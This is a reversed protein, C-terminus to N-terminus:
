QGQAQTNPRAKTNLAEWPKPYNYHPVSPGRHNAYNGNLQNSKWSMAEQSSPEIKYALYGGIYRPRNYVKRYEPLTNWIPRAFIDQRQLAPDLYTGSLFDGAITAQANVLAISALLGVLIWKRNKM